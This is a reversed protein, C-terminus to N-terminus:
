ILAGRLLNMLLAIICVLSLVWDYSTINYLETDDKSTNTILMAM